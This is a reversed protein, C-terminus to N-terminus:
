RITAIIGDAIAQALVRQYSSTSLKRREVPCTLFGCEVLAAAGRTRTLVAYSKRKIGRDPCTTRHGLRVHINRALRYGASGTYFTEIGRARRRPDANCHISVFVASRYGNAVAARSALSVFRDSRRTMTTRIGRSRLVTEVRQAIILTLKKERVGGYFAGLDMGGHGPDLVVMKRAAQVPTAMFAACLFVLVLPLVRCLPIGTSVPVVAALSM